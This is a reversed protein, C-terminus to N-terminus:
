QDDFSEELRLPAPQFPKPDNEYNQTALFLFSHLRTIEDEKVDHPLSQWHILDWPKKTRPTPKNAEPQAMNDFLTPVPLHRQSKNNFSLESVKEALSYKLNPADKELFRRINTNM